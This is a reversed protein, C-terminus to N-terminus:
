PAAEDAVGLRVPGPTGGRRRHAGPQNKNKTTQVSTGALSKELCDRVGTGLQGMMAPVELAVLDSCSVPGASAAPPPPTAGMAAADGANADPMARAASAVKAAADAAAKQAAEADARKRSEEAAAQRAQEAAATEAAAKQRAAEAAKQAEAAQRQAAARAAADGSTARSAAERAAREAAEADKRAQEVAAQRARQEQQAAEEAQRAQQAAQDAQRSAEQRAQNAADDSPRTDAQAVPSQTADRKGGNEVDQGSYDSVGVFPSLAPLPDFDFFGLRMNSPHPRGADDLVMGPSMPKGDVICGAWGDQCPLAPFASRFNSWGGAALAVGASGLLALVALRTPLRFTRM